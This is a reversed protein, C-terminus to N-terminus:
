IVTLVTFLIYFILLIWFSHSVKEDDRSKKYSVFLFISLLIGVVGLIPTYKSLVARVLLLMNNSSFKELFLADFPVVGYFCLGQYSLLLSVLLLIIPLALTM